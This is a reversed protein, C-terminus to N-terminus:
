SSHVSPELPMPVDTQEDLSNTPSKPDKQVCFCSQLHCMRAPLSYSRLGCIVVEFCRTFDGCGALEQFVWVM